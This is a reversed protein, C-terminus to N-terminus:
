ARPPQPGKLEQEFVDPTEETPTELLDNLMWCNCIEVCGGQYANLVIKMMRERHAAKGIWTTAASSEGYVPAELRWGVEELARSLQNVNQWISGILGDVSEVTMETARAAAEDDNLPPIKAALAPTQNIPIM